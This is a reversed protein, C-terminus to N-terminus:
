QGGAVPQGVPRMTRAAQAAVAAPRRRGGSAILYDKACCYLMSLQQRTGFINSLESRCRSVWAVVIHQPFRASGYSLLMNRASAFFLTYLCFDTHSPFGLSISITAPPCSCKSCINANPAFDCMEPHASDCKQFNNTSYYFHCGLSMEVHHPAISPFRNRSRM